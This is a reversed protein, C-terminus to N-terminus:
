QLYQLVVKAFSFFCTLRTIAFRERLREQRARVEIFCPCLADVASGIHCLILHARKTSSPLPQLAAQLPKQDNPDPLGTDSAASNREAM